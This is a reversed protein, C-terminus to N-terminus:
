LNDKENELQSKRKLFADKGTEFAEGFKQGLHEKKEALLDKGQVAYESLVEGVGEAIYMATDKAESLRETTGMAAEKTKEKFEASSDEAKEKLERPALLIWSITGAVAGVIAGFIFSLTGKNGHQTGNQPKNM